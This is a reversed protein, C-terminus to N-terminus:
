ADAKDAGCGREEHHKFTYYSHGNAAIHHDQLHPCSSAGTDHFAGDHEIVVTLRQCSAQLM